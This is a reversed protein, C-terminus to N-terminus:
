MHDINSQYQMIARDEKGAIKLEKYERYAKNEQANQPNVQLPKSNNTKETNKAFTPKHSYKEAISKVKM